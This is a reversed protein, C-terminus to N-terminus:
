ASGISVTTRPSRRWWRGPEGWLLGSGPVDAYEDIGVALLHFEGPSVGATPSETPQHLLNREM